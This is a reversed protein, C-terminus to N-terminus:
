FQCIPVTTSSKSSSLLLENFPSFDLQHRYPAKVGINYGRQYPITSALSSFSFGPHWGLWLVRLKFDGAWLIHQPLPPVSQTPTALWHRGESSAQVLLPFGHRTSGPHGPVLFLSTWLGLSSGYM